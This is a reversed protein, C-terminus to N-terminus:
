LEYEGDIKALHVTGADYWEVFWGNDSLYKEVDPNNSSYYDFIGVGNISPEGEGGTWIMGDPMVDTSNFEEVTKFFPKNEDVMATLGAIIQDRTAVQKTSM